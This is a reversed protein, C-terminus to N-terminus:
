WLLGQHPIFMCLRDHRGIHLDEIVSFLFRNTYTGAVSLLTKPGIGPFGTGDSVRWAPMEREGERDRHVLGAGAVHM